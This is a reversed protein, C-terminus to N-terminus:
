KNKEHFNNYLHQWKKSDIPQRLSPSHLNNKIHVSFTGNKADRILSITPHPRERIDYRWHSPADTINYSWEEFSSNKLISNM